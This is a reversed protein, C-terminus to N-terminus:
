RSISFDVFGSTSAPESTESGLQSLSATTEQDVWIDFMEQCMQDSVEDTFTAPAYRELRVVLWWDAIRFPELLVGPQAVRLKEVLVPHAQTLSVPGVIGNTNREPGEAYRRALDAFNSEGSEIQLYLERALFSNELRLLSYVVQDLENKRELFRAEAKAAFRERMLSRRRISQRLRELVEDESRGLMELLDAWQALGDFGRQQLLGLRAQELQEESVVVHSIAQSTVMQEVLPKLLNFRDLLARGEAGITRQLEPVVTGSNM